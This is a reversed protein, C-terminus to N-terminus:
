DRPFRREGDQRRRNDSKKKPRRPAPPDIEPLQGFHVLMPHPEARSPIVKLLAALEIERSITLRTRIRRLDPDDYGPHCVLEWAGQPLAKAMRKLLKADLTGTALVGLAGDTTRMGAREVERLFTGRRARVAKVQLVRLWDAGSAAIRLSWDPEYPNRIAGVDCARAARLLPRLVSPFSHLHKHTDIHTVRVGARQIKRIQAIAEQEIQAASIRGLFLDRLFAGPAARFAGLKRNDLTRIPDALLSAVESLPSVPFGDVLVIHCGVGLSPHAHAFAAADEFAGGNAMLTASTLAGAAHLEAVARNVGPTLGFDDANVILSQM